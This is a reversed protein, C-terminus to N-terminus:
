PRLVIKGHTHRRELETCAQRVRTLPYVDAIPAELHGGAILAAPEALVEAGPRANTGPETKVGYKAAAAFDAITDIREVQGARPGAREGARAPRGRRGAVGRNWRVRRIQSGKDNGQKEQPARHAASTSFPITRAPTATVLAGNRRRRLM